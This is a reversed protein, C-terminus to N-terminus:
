LYCLSYGKRGESTKASCAVISWKRDDIDELELTESLEEPSLALALDQKNAYVLLPVDKM